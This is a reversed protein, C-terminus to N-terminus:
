WWHLADDNQDMLNNLRREIVRQKLKKRRDLVKKLEKIEKELEKLTLLKEEYRIDFIKELKKRLKEKQLAYKEKDTNRAMREAMQRAEIELREAAVMREYLRPKKQRIKEFHKIKRKARELERQYAIPTEIKMKLLIQAGEPFNRQVWELAQKEDIEPPGVQARLPTQLFGPVLVFTAILVIMLIKM